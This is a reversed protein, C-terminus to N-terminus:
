ESADPALAMEWSVSTERGLDKGVHGARGRIEPAGVSVGIGGLGAQMASAVGMAIGQGDGRLRRSGMRIHGLPALGGLPATRHRRMGGGHAAHLSQLLAPYDFFAIEELRFPAGLVPIRRKVKTQQFVDSGVIVIQHTGDASAGKNVRHDQALAIMAEAAVANALRPSVGTGVTRETGTSITGGAACGGLKARSRGCTLNQDIDQIVQKHLTRFRVLAAARIDLTALHLVVHGNVTPKDQDFAQGRSTRQGDPPIFGGSSAKVKTHTAQSATLLHLLAIQFRVPLTFARISHHGTFRAFIRNVIALEGFM